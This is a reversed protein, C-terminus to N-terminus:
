PTAIKRRSRSIEIARPLVVSILLLSGSVILLANSSVNSLQLVSRIAGLVLVAALVGWITGVGGAIAVGGFLVSAIVALEFGTAGSPSASAFRFSYVVGAVGSMLGTMTFLLLKMRQVPIGSFVAAESNIGLAFTWRGFRTYHLTVWAAAGLIVLLITSYPLFTHPINDYGIHTIPATLFDVPQSGLLVYCLGRFLALTGITVALSQLGFKTVLIGNIFGCLTGVILGIVISWGFPVGRSYAFGMSASTLNLISAVSLDIEGAIILFTMPLAIIMIEGIDQIVFSLNSSTAFYPTFLPGTFCTLVLLVAVGRDWSFKFKM